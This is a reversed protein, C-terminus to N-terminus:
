RKKVKEITTLPKINAGLVSLTLAEVGTGVVENVQPSASAKSRTTIEPTLWHTAM